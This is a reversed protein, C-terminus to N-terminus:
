AQVNTPSMRPLGMLERPSAASRPSAGAISRKSLTSEFPATVKAHVAIARLVRSADSRYMTRSIWASCDPSFYEAIVGDGERVAPLLGKFVVALLRRALGDSLGLDDAYLEVVEVKGDM